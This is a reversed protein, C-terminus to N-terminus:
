QVRLLDPNTLAIEKLKAGLNCIAEHFGHSLHDSEREHALEHLLLSDWAVGPGLDFWDRGVVPVFVDLRRSGYCATFGTQEDVMSVNIDVDLLLRAIHEAYSAFDGMGASWEKEPIVTVPKGDECYPKPTPFLQGAPRSAGARRVNEWEGASLMGGHLVTFGRSTATAASERDSPDYTVHDVGFREEVATTVAQDSCRSDATAQRVWTDNAQDGEIREHMENLVLVRVHRLFAPTVNDREMNLPVRQGVNVHWRDGTEVVPIGREYVGATEGPLPEHLEVTTKRQRTRMVGQDDAVRTELTATFTRVPRRDLLEESNIVTRIKAPPILKHLHELADSLEMRTMYMEAEFVTGSKRRDKSQRRGNPGFTITGCTTRIQADNCFALVLKEGLNFCGRKGPDTKKYSPRFLTFADALDRFGNPADDEVTLYVIPRGGGPQLEVEVKSVGDEDWANQILEAILAGKGRREVLQALGKRDVEFWDNM